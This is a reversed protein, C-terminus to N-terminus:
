RMGVLSFEKLIPAKLNNLREYFIGKIINREEKSYYAYSKFWICEFTGLMQSTSLESFLFKSLENPDTISDRSACIASPYIKLFEEKSVEKFAKVRTNSNKKLPRYRYRWVVGRDHFFTPGVRAIVQGDEELVWDSNYAVFAKILETRYLGKFRSLDKPLLHLTNHINPVFTPDVTASFYSFKQWEYFGFMFDVQVYGKSPDGEIPVATFIQNNGPRPKVHDDGLFEKLEKAVEEQDYFHIDFNLDIDGSTPNKGASGLICENLNIQRNLKWSPWKEQLWRLTPFVSKQEIRQVFDFANSGM